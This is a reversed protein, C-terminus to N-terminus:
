GLFEPYRKIIQKGIVRRLHEAIRKEELIAADILGLNDLRKAGDGRAYRDVSVRRHLMRSGECAKICRTDRFPQPIGSAFASM